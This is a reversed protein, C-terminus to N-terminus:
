VQWHPCFNAVAAFNTRSLADALGNDESSLWHADIYIDHAAALLLIRRLPVNAPGRLTFNRFGSLATTSDTHLVLKHSQWRAAWKEFAVLIAELELVNIHASARPPTFFSLEQKILPAADKWPRNDGYFFYGGLGSLSADTYLQAAPRDVDDFFRVGNYVPLLENWWQLDSRVSRPIRRQAFYPLPAISAAFNWIHPMFVRGLRVVNACFTLFGSLSRAQHSSLSGMLLAKATSLQAKRLKDVPLRAEFTSTDITIGLVTVKTGRANKADNRPCGLIDTLAVYAEDDAQFVEPSCDPAAKIYIFDDLYHVLDQWHLYSVLMWHLAEAFLNFIFPATRLGFSLCTEQYTQGNWSFGLLTQEHPAVPINRFANKIDRKTIVCHRGARVVADLVDQFTDFKLHGYSEPIGDNVSRGPPHSLHHIRRFNGDSKPVLGLPSLVLSAGPRCPIVRKRRTDEVLMADIVDPHATASSLNRSRHHLPPGTYGLQTGFYLIKTINLGLDGPYQNLLLKWHEPIFPSPSHVLFPSTSDALEFQPITNPRPDAPICRHM